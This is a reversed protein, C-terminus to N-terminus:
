SNLEHKTNTDNNVTKMKNQNLTLQRLMIDHLLKVGQLVYECGVLYSVVLIACALKRITTTRFITVNGLMEHKVSGPQREARIIAENKSLFFCAHLFTSNHMKTKTNETTNSPLPFTTNGKSKCIKRVKNLLHAKIIIVIVQMPDHKRTVRELIFM